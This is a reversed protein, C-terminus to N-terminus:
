TEIEIEELITYKIDSNDLKNLTIKSCKINYKINLDYEKVFDSDKLIYEIIKQKSYITEIQIRYGKEIKVMNALQISSNTCKSYARILGNAGLKIGGFYRIVVCLIYNLEHKLLVEMIPIGATGGPENDDSSKRYENIIYAYCYHTADKYEKKIESMKESIESINKVKILKTIFISKNIEIKNTIDNKITYM